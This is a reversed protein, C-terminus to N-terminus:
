LVKRFQSDSFTPSEVSFIPNILSFALAQIWDDKDDQREHQLQLTHSTCIPELGFDVMPDWCEYFSFEERLPLLNPQPFLTQELAPCIFHYLIKEKSNRVLSVAQVTFPNEELYSNDVVISVEFRAQHMTEYEAVLLTHKTILSAHAPHSALFRLQNERM